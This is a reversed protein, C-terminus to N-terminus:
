RKKDRLCKPCKQGLEGSKRHSKFTKECENCEVDYMKPTKRNLKIKSRQSKTAKVKNQEIEESSPDNTILQTGGTKRQVATRKSIDLLLSADEGDETTVKKKSGKPRGIKKKTPTITPNIMAALVIDAIQQLAFETDTTSKNPLPIQKGTLREYGECVTEWNGTRIGEEIYELPSM